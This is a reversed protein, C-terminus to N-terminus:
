GPLGYFRIATSAFLAQREAASLKANAVQASRYVVDYSASLTCVPWDSGFMMRDPGFGTLLVDVWSRPHYAPM